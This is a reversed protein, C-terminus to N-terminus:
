IELVLLIEALAKNRKLVPMSLVDSSPMKQSCIFLPSLNHNVLCAIGTKFLNSKCGADLFLNPQLDVTM